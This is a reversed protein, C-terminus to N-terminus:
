STGLVVRNQYTLRTSTLCGNGFTQCLTDHTTVHRLVKLFLLYVGEIHTGEHSTGLVLTLELLTQLTDDIGDDLRLTLYDEKDVLNVGEHTSATSFARHIGCVEQLRGECTTLQTGNTSRRQVFILLIELLVLGKLTTELYHHDILRVFQRCDGDEPSQLLLILVVVPNTNLIIGANRGYRQRLTIDRVTEQGVLGYVKHILRSCFQTHLTVGNWLFQVLKRSFQLLQLNLALGDLALFVLHLQLFQVLGDRGKLVLLHTHARLPHLLLIRCLRYM